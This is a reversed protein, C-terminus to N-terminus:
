QREKTLVLFAPANPQLSIVPTKGQELAYWYSGPLKQDGIEYNMGDWTDERFAYFAFHWKNERFIDILDEFYTPLGKSMRHGGFEGVLIRNSPIQYRSQFDQVTELYGKLKEKDWHIGKVDGPYSWKGKNRKYNTYDFPEYMHFAYLTNQDNQPKLYAFTAPDAHMSSDIIISMDADISRIAKLMQHNFQNFTNYVFEKEMLTLKEISDSFLKEPHPENLFNYGILAPHDELAVALDKWFQLAQNMYVPDSWLRLDDQDHNNQKWRSGPLSLMTLVVPMKEEACLDLISKLYVLDEQVIKHYHDADGILFDRQKTVFKDPAIRLFEIGYSKAARIDDRSIEKNFMNAGRRPADWFSIKSSPQSFPTFAWCIFLLLVPILVFLIRKSIALRMPFMWNFCYPYTNYKGVSELDFMKGYKKYKEFVCM